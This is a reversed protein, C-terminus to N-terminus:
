KIIPNKERDYSLVVAVTIIVGHVAIQIFNHIGLLTMGNSIVTVIWAGLLAQWVGGRGGALSTGGVLIATLTAFLTGEGVVSTGAGIRGVNLVGGVGYFLGALTFTMIKYRDVPIGALAARDEAGGIAYAYRGLRTYNQIIYAIYSRPWLM